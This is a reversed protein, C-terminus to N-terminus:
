RTKTTKKRYPYLPCEKSTCDEPDDEWGLCETCMCRIALMPTLKLSVLGGTRKKMSHYIAATPKSPARKGGERKWRALGDLMKSMGEGRRAPTKQGIEVAGGTQYECPTSRTVVPSSPAKRVTTSVAVPQVMSQTKM